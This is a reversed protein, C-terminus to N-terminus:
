SRWVLVQQTVGSHIQTRSHRRFGAREYLRLAADNGMATVVRAGDVGRCHLEALAARLLASGVGRHQMAAGVAVALVEARPLDDARETGYRFTEWVRRPARALAPLAARVARIGDYRIFERYLGSTSEAVAVFGLVGTGDDAVLVFAHPSHVMRAYLRQLFRPGLTALFGDGIRQTHMAAIAAADEVRATRVRNM